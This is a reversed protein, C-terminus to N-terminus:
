LFPISELYDAGSWLICLVLTLAWTFIVKSM